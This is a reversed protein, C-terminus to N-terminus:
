GADFKLAEDITAEVMARAANQAQDPDGAVIAAVLASHREVSALNLEHMGPRTDFRRVDFAPSITRTLQFIIANGTSELLKRHFRADAEFFASPNGAFFASRMNEVATKMQEVLIPKARQASLRASAQELGLRLELLETMQFRYQRGQARWRVIEPNLLDWNEVPLVRTGYRPRSEVLGMSSLTRISERIVSRSIGLRECIQEASVVRGPELEGDIIEQGLVDVAYAYLSPGINSRRRVPSPWSKDPTAM